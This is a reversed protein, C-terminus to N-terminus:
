IKPSLESIARSWAQFSKFFLAQFVYTGCGTFLSKTRGWEQAMWITNSSKLRALRLGVSTQSIHLKRAIEELSLIPNEQILSDISLDTKDILKVRAIKSKPESARGTFPRRLIRKERMKKDGAFCVLNHPLADGPPKRKKKPTDSQRRKSSFRM